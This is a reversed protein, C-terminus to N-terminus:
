RAAPIFKPPMCRRPSTLKSQAGSSGDFSTRGISREGRPGTARAQPRGRVPVEGRSRIEVAHLEERVRGPGARLAVVTGGRGRPQLRDRILVDVGAFVQRSRLCPRRGTPSTSARPVWRRARQQECEGLSPAARPPAGQRQCPGCHRAARRLRSRPTRAGPSASSPCSTTFADM